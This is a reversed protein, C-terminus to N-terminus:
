LRTSICMFFMESFPDWEAGCSGAEYSKFSQATSRIRVAQLRFRHQSVTAYSTLHYVKLVAQRSQNPWEFGKDNSPIRSRVLGRKAVNAVVSKQKQRSFIKATYFGSCIM